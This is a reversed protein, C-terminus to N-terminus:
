ELLLLYEKQAFSFSKPVGPLVPPKRNVCYFILLNEKMWLTLKEEDSEIFRYKQNSYYKRRLGNLTGLSKRVTSNRASGCYHNKYDRKYFGRSSKGIYLVNDNEFSSYEIKQLPIPLKMLDRFCILYIGSDTVRKIDEISDKMPDFMIYTPKQSNPNKM